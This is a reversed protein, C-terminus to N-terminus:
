KEIRSWKAKVPQEFLPKEREGKHICLFPNQLEAEMALGGFKGIYFKISAKFPLFFYIFDIDKSWPVTSKCPSRASISCFGSDM